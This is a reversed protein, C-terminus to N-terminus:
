CGYHVLALLGGCLQLSVSALLCSGVITYLKARRELRQYISM